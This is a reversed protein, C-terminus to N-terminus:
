IEFARGTSGCAGCEVNINARFAVKADAAGSTATYVTTELPSFGLCVSMQDDDMNM